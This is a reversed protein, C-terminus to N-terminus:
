GGAVVLVVRFGYDDARYGPSGVDRYSSRLYVRAYSFWSAGRLVRYTQGGNDDKLRPVAEKAEADNLDATYWTSCWEWVNGGMDYLGFRNEKFMGVAATRAASDRRGATGLGDSFVELVGVVAETGFYNGDQSGPPFTEGWPFEGNGCARSWEADSPLRYSATAPINGTARDQKTLWACFAEADLYSVCVVPHEGTQKSPFHPDKWSGGNQEWGASKGDATKELTFAPTGFSGDSIADHHSDEVFATFDSMRTEWVSFLVGPTGAPVFAMGLSNRFPTTKGASSLVAALANEKAIRQREAEVVMARAKEEADAKEQAIRVEEARGQRPAEMGYWWGAAGGLVLVLTVILIAYEVLTKRHKRQEAESRINLTRSAKVPPAPQEVQPPAPVARLPTSDLVQRAEQPKASGLHIADALWQGAAQFRDSAKPLMAKDISALLEHSYRDRLDDRQALPVEPDDFARDTAKAPTQGTITKYLTTGLAYLDSWPGIKGRSQLQEFPTYGASEIVTLSRESLRQRAAGFDILVPGAKTMLINGPKIDRHYIGREHLYGLADLVKTLLAQIETETFPNGQSTRQRIVEDLATGEVFPMVFYATGHAEFSRLVKVIGPHDLSALTSAEKRFSELSYQFNDADEGETHRPRVTLAHTDRWCFQAPLNEKIVVQRGLSSDKALYTIGFGGVGLIREIVFEELHTGGPLSQGRATDPSPPNESM